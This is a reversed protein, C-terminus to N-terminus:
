NDFSDAMEGFAKEYDKDTGNLIGGIGYADMKM